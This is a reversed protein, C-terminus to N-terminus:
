ERGIEASAGASRQAVVPRDFGIVAVWMGAEDRHWVVKGGLRQAIADPTLDHHLGFYRENMRESFPWVNVLPPPDYKTSFVLAATYKGPEAAAQEIESSSFDDISCVQWRKKVYGLEPRTLEDSAPWATLVTDGPYMRGLEAIGAQQMRVVRSYLLNDEPAIGYPPNIFVGAVFAGAAV